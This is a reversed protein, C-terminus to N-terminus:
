NNYIVCLFPSCVMHHLTIFVALKLDNSRAGTDKMSLITVIEDTNLTSGNLVRKVLHKFVQLLILELQSRSCCETCKVLKFSSEKAINEAICQQLIEDSLMDASAFSFPDLVDRFEKCLTEQVSVRDLENNIVASRRHSHKPMSQHLVYKRCM